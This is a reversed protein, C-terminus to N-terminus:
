HAKSELFRVMSTVSDFNDPTLDDDSLEIDWTEGIWSALALIGLSDIVGTDLLSDDDSKARAGAFRADIFARVKQRLGDSMPM